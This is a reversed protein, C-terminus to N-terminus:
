PSLAAGLHLPQAVEVGGRAVAVAVADRDQELVPRLEEEVVQRQVREARADHRDIGVVAVVLHGIQQVVALHLQGDHQRM